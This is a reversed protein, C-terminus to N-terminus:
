VELIFNSKAKSRHSTNLRITKRKKKRGM